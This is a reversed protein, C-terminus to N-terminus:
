AARQRAAALDRRAKLARVAVLPFVTSATVFYLPDAIVELSGTSTEGIALLTWAQLAVLLAAAAAVALSARSIM